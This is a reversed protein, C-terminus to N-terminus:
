RLARRHVVIVLDIAIAARRDQLLHARLASAAEGQHGRRGLDRAVAVGLKRVPVVAIEIIQGAKGLGIGDHRQDGPRVAVPLQQEAPLLVLLALDPVAKAVAGIRRALDEAEVLRVRNRLQVPDQGVQRRVPRRQVRRQAQELCPVALDGAHQVLDAVTGAGPNRRGPFDDVHALRKVRHAEDLVLVLARQHAARRRDRRAGVAPRHRGRAGAPELVLDLGLEDVLEQAVAGLRDRIRRDDGAPGIRAHQVIAVVVALQLVAFQQQDVGAALVLAVRRVDRARERDVATEAARLLVDVLEHAACAAHM